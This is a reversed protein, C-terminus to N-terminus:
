PEGTHHVTKHDWVTITTLAEDLHEDWKLDLINRLRLKPALAAIAVALRVHYSAHAIWARLQDVTVIVRRRHVRERELGVFPNMTVGTQKRFQPLLAVRYMGSMASRYHNRTQPSIARDRMWGEFQVIWDPDEVPDILRLNHYPEGDLAAVTHGEPPRAGWFLLVRNLLELIREPRRVREARFAYYTGAWESIYPSDEPRVLGGAVRRVKEKLRAEVERAATLKTQGTSGLYRKGRYRFDYRYTTGRPVLFVAM